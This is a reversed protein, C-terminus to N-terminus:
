KQKGGPSVQQDLAALINAVVVPKTEWNSGTWYQRSTVKELEKPLVPGAPPTAKLMEVKGSALNIRAMGSADKKAARVVEPPPAAGGAYFAHAEWRLLLNGKDIDAHAAFSRGHTLGVSVWDPFAVADSDLKRKGKENFVSIRLVNTKGPVASWAALKKRFVALPRSAEKTDWLLKGTELNIADIGGTANAVYGIKGDPAAVGGPLYVPKDSPAGGSFTSPAVCALVALTSCSCFRMM